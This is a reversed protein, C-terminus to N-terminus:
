RVMGCGGGRVVMSDGRVEERDFSEDEIEELGGGLFCDSSRVAMM